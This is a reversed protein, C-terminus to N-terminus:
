EQQCSALSRRGVWGPRLSLPVGQHSLDQAVDRDDRVNVMTLGRQHIAQQFLGALEALVLAHSFASHVGVVDLALAADGDEGLHGRDLPLVGTDVDDVGGPVGVEATLDLADQRHNVTHHQQDVGSFARHRLGLEHQGLCQGEADARDHQDVLDVLGVAARVPHQVLGEVQEGREVGSFFLKLKRHEVGGGLFAPRHLLEVVRAAIHRWQEVQDDIM